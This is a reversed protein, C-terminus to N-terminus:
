RSLKSRDGLLSSVLPEIAEAMRQQTQATPHLPPDPPTLHVDLFADKDVHGDKLFLNKLDAFHVLPDAGTGYRQALMTNLEATNQDIWASRISPLVALLLIKTTPLRQHLTSIITEIGLLTPAAAWHLHGFNNAGILLIALRPTIGDTEGHEIRWLLHATADGKFGLNVAHRDGYFRQWVPAFNRWEQPGNQEFNQTISDGLWVLDVRQHLEAQKEEFRQKWWPLDMRSYPRAAPPLEAAGLLLAAACLIFTKQKKKEFFFTKRDIFM